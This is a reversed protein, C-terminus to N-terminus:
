TNITTHLTPPPHHSPRPCGAPPRAIISNHAVVLLLDDSIKPPYTVNKRYFLPQAHFFRQVSSHTLRKSIHIATNCEGWPANLTPHLISPSTFCLTHLYTLLYIRLHPACAYACCHVHSAQYLYVIYNVYYPRTHAKIVKEFFSRM